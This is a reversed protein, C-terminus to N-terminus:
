YGKAACLRCPTKVTYVINLHTYSVPMTIDVFGEAETRIQYEYVSM